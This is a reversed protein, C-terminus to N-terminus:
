GCRRGAGLGVRIRASSGARVAEGIMADDEALLLRVPRCRRAPDRSAARRGLHPAIRRAPSPLAVGGPAALYRSQWEPLFKEKYRRLGEFNYFHEGHRYIFAGPRNWLPALASSSARCRLWASTSIGTARRAAWLMLEVFLFDMIGKPADPPHRMLDISMGRTGRRDLPECRSSSEGRRVVACAGRELYERDFFGLSFGKEAISKSGAM